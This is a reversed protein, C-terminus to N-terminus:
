KSKSKRELLQTAKDELGLTIKIAQISQNLIGVVLKTSFGALFPLLLLVDSKADSGFSSQAFAFFFTWGLIAGLMLRFRVEETDGRNMSKETWEGILNFIVYVIAGLLGLSMGLVAPALKHILDLWLYTNPQDSKLMAFASLALAVSLICWVFLLRRLEAVASKGEKSFHFRVTDITAPFTIRTLDRIAKDLILRIDRDQSIFPDQIQSEYAKEVEQLDELIEDPVYINNTIAYDRLALVGRANRQRSEEPNPLGDEKNGASPGEKSNDGMKGRRNPKGSIARHPM